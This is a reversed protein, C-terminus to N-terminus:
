ASLVILVTWITLLAVPHAPFRHHSPLISPKCSSRGRLTTEGEWMNMAQLHKKLRATMTAAEAPKDTLGNGQKNQTRFLYGDTTNEGMSELTSLYTNLSKVPCLDCDESSLVMGRKAARARTTKGFAVEVIFGKQAEM